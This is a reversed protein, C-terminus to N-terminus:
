PAFVRRRLPTALATAKGVRCASCRPSASRVISGNALPRRTSCRCWGAGCSRRAVPKWFERASGSARRPATVLVMSIWAFRDPYPLVAGSAITQANGGPVGFVTGHRMFLAWDEATQNWGAEASLALCDGIAGEGLAALPLGDTPGM